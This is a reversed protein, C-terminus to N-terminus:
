AENQPPIDTARRLRPYLLVRLVVPMSVGESYMAKAAANVGSLPAVALGAKVDAEAKNDTRRTVRSEAM